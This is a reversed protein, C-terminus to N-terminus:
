CCPLRDQGDSRVSILSRRYRADPRASISTIGFLSVFPLSLPSDNSVLRRSNKYAAVLFFLGTAVDHTTTNDALECDRIVFQHNSEHNRASHVQPFSKKLIRWNARQGERKQASFPCASDHTVCVRSLFSFALHPTPTVGTLLHIAFAAPQAYLVTPSVLNM